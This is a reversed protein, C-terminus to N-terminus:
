HEGFFNGRRLGGSFPGNTRDWGPCGIREFTSGDVSNAFKTSLLSSESLSITVSYRRSGIEPAIAIAGNAIGTVEGQWPKVELRSVLLQLLERRQGPPLAGIM